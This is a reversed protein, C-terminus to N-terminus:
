LHSDRERERYGMWVLCVMYEHDYLVYYGSLHQFPQCVFPMNESCYVILCNCNGRCRADSITSDSENVSKVSRFASSKGGELLNLANLFSSSLNNCLRMETHFM